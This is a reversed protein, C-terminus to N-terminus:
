FPKSVSKLFLVLGSLTVPVMPSILSKLIVAAQYAGVVIIALLNPGIQSKANTSILSM